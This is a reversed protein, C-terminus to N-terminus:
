LNNVLCTNKYERMRKPAMTGKIVVDGFKDAIYQRLEIGDWERLADNDIGKIIGAEVARILSYVFVKQEAQTMAYLM